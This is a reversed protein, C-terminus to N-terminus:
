PEDQTAVFMAAFELDDEPAPLVLKGRRALIRWASLHNPELGFNSAVENVTVSLCLSEAVM